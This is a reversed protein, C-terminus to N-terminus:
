GIKEMWDLRIPVGPLCGDSRLSKRFRTVINTEDYFRQLLTYRSLGKRCVICSRLFYRCSIDVPFVMASFCVSPGYRSSHREVVWGRGTRLSATKTNKRVSPIIQLNSPLVPPSTETRITQLITIFSSDARREGTVSM